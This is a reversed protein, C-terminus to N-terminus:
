KDALSIGLRDHLLAAFKGWVGNVFELYETEHADLHPGEDDSWYRFRLRARYELFRGYARLQDRDLASLAADGDAELRRLLTVVHTFGEEDATERM